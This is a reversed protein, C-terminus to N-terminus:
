KKYKVEGKKEAKARQANIAIQTTKLGSYLGSASLGLMIGTLISGGLDAFTNNFLLSLGVGVGISLFPAYKDKVWEAMKFAQVIALIIPISSAAVISYNLYFDQDLIM